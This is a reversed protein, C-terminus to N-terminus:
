QSEEIAIWKGDVKREWPEANVYHILNLRAQEMEAETEPMRLYGEVIQRGIRDRRARDVLRAIGLRIADSRSAVVGEAILEDLEKLTDDDVRAIIQTM